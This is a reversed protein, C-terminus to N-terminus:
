RACLLSLSTLRSEYHALDKLLGKQVEAADATVENVKRVRIIESTFHKERQSKQFEELLKLDVSIQKRHAENLTLLHDIIAIENGSTLVRKTDDDCRENFAQARDRSPPLRTLNKFQTELSNRVAKISSLGKASNILDDDVSKLSRILLNANFQEMGFTADISCQVIGNPYCDKRLKVITAALGALAGIISLAVTLHKIRM